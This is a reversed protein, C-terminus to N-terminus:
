NFSELLKYAKDWLTKLSQYTLKERVKNAPLRITDKIEAKQKIVQQSWVFWVYYWIYKDIVEQDRRPYTYHEKFIKEQYIKVEPIWTEEIFERQAAMLPTEEEETHGKPFWRYRGGITKVLLVEYNGQVNKYIPIIGYSFEKIM